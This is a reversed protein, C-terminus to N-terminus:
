PVLFTLRQGGVSLRVAGANRWSRDDVHLQHHGADLFVERARRIRLLPPAPADAPHERLHADLNARDVEDDCVFAVEILGDDFTADPTLELGPGIRRMNMAEVLLYDGSQDQGDLEVRWKRPRAKKLTERLISRARELAAHPTEDDDRGGSQAVAADEKAMMDAFFGAGVSEIFWRTTQEGVAEGVDVPVRRMDPWKAVLEKFTGRINMSEAVNNATGLPLVALPVMEIERRALRRAVRGVTGDGGAVAYLDTRKDLARSWRKEKTSVYRVDYGEKSLTKLLADASPKGHGATPNHILTVRM